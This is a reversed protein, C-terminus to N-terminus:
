YFNSMFYLKSHCFFRTTLSGEIKALFFTISNSIHIKVWKWALFRGFIVKWVWYSKTYYLYFTRQGRTKKTMGLLLNHWLKTTISCILFFHRALFKIIELKSSSCGHPPDSGWTSNPTPVVHFFTKTVFYATQARIHTKSVYNCFDIHTRSLYFVRSM